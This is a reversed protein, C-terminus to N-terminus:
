YSPNRYLQLWTDTVADIAYESLVRQRALEGFKRRNEPSFALAQVLGSALALDDEVPVVIGLGNLLKAAGGCNTSVVIKETSMAEAIALGFGEFRSPMAVVDAANLLAPADHRTGLFTVATSIQQARALGELESRLSGDGVLLLHTEPRTPHLHAFARILSAHNKPPELRGLAMIITKDGLNLEQRISLGVSPDSRFRTTDIGNPVVRIRDKKVAGKDIFAEAAQESVHTTLDTLTDTMRYALMLLRGGENSSHATCILRPSHPRIKQRAILRTLRAILNAHVMHAHMVDPEIQHILASLKTIAQVLGLPTKSIKFAHSVAGRPLTLGASGTLWAIHVEHGRDILRATLACIQTEAGGLGMGTSLM